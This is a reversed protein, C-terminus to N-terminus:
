KLRKPMKVITVAMVVTDIVTMCAMNKILLPWVDDAM